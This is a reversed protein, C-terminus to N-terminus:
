SMPPAAGAAAYAAKWREVHARNDHQWPHFGPKFYKLWPIAIKRLAGPNVFLFRLFGRWGRWDRQLGDHKILRWHTYFTQSLFLMSVSLMVLCRRLYGWFGGAVKQYVDYAVAKHETEEIAHWRWLASMQPPAGDLTYGHTLLVEAMIATFHELAITNALQEAHPLMKRGFNLLAVAKAELEGAPYGAAAVAENYARHERGHMAEQGIFGKVEELLKPDTIRGKDRYYRVTDIFFQEGEPFFLSMANFFHSVFPGFPHWDRLQTGAIPFHIDRQTVALPSHSTM